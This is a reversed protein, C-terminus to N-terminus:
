LNLISYERISTTNGLTHNSVIQYITSGILAIGESEIRQSTETENAYAVYEATRLNEVDIVTVGAHLIRGTNVYSDTSVYLKGNCYKSGQIELKTLWERNSLITYTGDYIGETMGLKIKLLRKNTNDFGNKDIVIAYVIDCREGFCNAVMAYESDLEQPMLIKIWDNETLDTSSYLKSKAGTLLYLAMPLNDNPVNASILTDTYECYDVDNNHISVGLNKMKTGVLTDGEQKVYISGLRCSCLYGDIVCMGQNGPVSSIINNVKLTDKQIYDQPVGIKEIDERAVADYATKDVNILEEGIIELTFSGDYSKGNEITVGIFCTMDSGVSFSTTQSSFSRIINNDTDQLTPNPITGIIDWKAIYNGSKLEFTNTLKNVRGGNATGVGSFVFSGDNNCIISVGKVVKTIGNLYSVKNAKHLKYGSYYNDTISEIDNEITGISSAVTSFNDWLTKAIDYCGNIVFKSPLVDIGTSYTHRIVIYQADNPVIYTEGIDPVDRFEGNTALDLDYPLGNINYTKVFAVACTKNIGPVIFLSDGAVVRLVIHRADGYSVIKNTSNLHGFISKVLRLSMIYTTLDSHLDNNELLNPTLSQTGIFRKVNINGNVGSDSFTIYVTENTTAEYLFKKPGTKSFLNLLTVGSDTGEVFTHDKLYVYLNPSNNTIEYTNGEVLPIEMFSEWRKSTVGIKNLTNADTFISKAVGGSKILNNSGAAPEDDVGQWNAVTTNFTDSMMRYQVYKNDSSQESGKIFRITMGGHRVSTPILTSLDSSSLLASLSEFVADNNNASVDFIIAEEAAKARAVEDAIATTTAKQSMVKDEADGSEQLISEKDFKKDLETAIESKEAKTAITADQAQNKAALEDFAGQATIATMGSTENNYSVANATSAGGTVTIDKIADELQNTKDGIQQLNEQDGELFVQKASAIKGKKTKALLEDTLNISM